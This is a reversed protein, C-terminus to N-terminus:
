KGASWTSVNGIKRRFYVTDKGSGSWIQRANSPFSSFEQADQGAVVEARAWGADSYENEYWSPFMVSTSKWTDDTMYGNSLYGRLGIDRSTPTCSVAVLSSTDPIEGRFVGVGTNTQQEGDVYVTIRGNCQLNAVM